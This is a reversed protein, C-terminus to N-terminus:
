LICLASYLGVFEDPNTTLAGVLEVFNVEGAFLELVVIALAPTDPLKLELV